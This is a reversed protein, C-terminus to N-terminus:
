SHFIQPIAKEVFYQLSCIQWNDNTTWNQSENNSHVLFKYDAKIDNAAIKNGRSPLISDGYKIEVAAMPKGSKTIVLDLEQGQHTRYFFLEGNLPLKISIQEIVFGEWSVGVMPHNFLSDLTDVGILFHFLGSDRLYIKSAKVLRKKLNVAYPPLQYILFSEDLFDLYRKVTKDTLELSKSLNSNNITSGQMHSIMSILRSTTSPRAPLGLLPLDREIYTKVYNDFWIMRQKIHLLPNPYGGKLWREEQRNWGLETCSLGSLELYAIRGALSESSERILEPSASGLIIFRGAVRNRDIVSRLIPFLSKLRQIEDIIVLADEFKTLYAEANELKQLDQPSELDLYICEKDSKDSLLKALTTKGIQRPGIIGICPFDEMLEFAVKELARQIM